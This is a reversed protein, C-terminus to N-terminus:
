DLVWTETFAAKDITYNHPTSAEMIANYGWFTTPVDPFSVCKGAAIADSDGYRGLVRNILTVAEARTMARQPRFEGDPYGVVYGLAAAIGVEDHAWDTSKVDAFELGVVDTDKTAFRVCIATAEQRTVTDNPRFLNDSGKLIGLSALTNVAEAFWRGDEVDTFSVTKEVNKNRLLRYFIMAMEARTIPDNRRWNGNNDGVTYAIHEDTNLLEDIGTEEPTYPVTRYTVVVEVGGEPMVFTGDASVTVVEGTAKSVVVVDELAIHEAALKEALSGVGGLTVTTGTSISSSSGTSTTFTLTDSTIDGVVSEAYAEQPSVTTESTQGESTTETNETVVEITQADGTSTSSGSSSSGSSYPVTTVKTSQGYAIREAYTAVGFKVEVYAQTKALESVDDIGKITDSTFTVAKKLDNEIAEKRATVDTIAAWEDVKNDKLKYSITLKSGEKVAEGETGKQVYLDNTSLTFEYTGDALSKLANGTLVCVFEGNKLQEANRATIYAAIAEAVDEATTNGSNDISTSMDLTAKMTVNYKGSSQEKATATLDIKAVKGGNTEYTAASAMPVLLSASLCLALMLAFVKKLRM